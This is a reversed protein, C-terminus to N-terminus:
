PALSNLLGVVAGLVRRREDPGVYFDVLALVAYAAQEGVFGPEDVKAAAITANEAALAASELGKAARVAYAAALATTSDYIPPLDRLEQSQSVCKEHVLVEAACVRVAHDALRYRLEQEDLAPAHQRFFTLLTAFVAGERASLPELFGALTASTGHLSAHTM